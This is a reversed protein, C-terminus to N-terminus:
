SPGVGGAVCPVHRDPGRRSMEWAPVSAPHAERRNRRAVCRGSRQVVVADGIGLDLSEPRQQEVQVHRGAGFGCRDDDPNVAAREPGTVAAVQRLRELRAGHEVRQDRGSDPAGRDVVPQATLGDERGLEVVNDGGDIVELLVRVHEADVGGADAHPALRGAARQRRECAQGIRADRGDDPPVRDGVHHDAGSSVAVILVLHDARQEAGLRPLHRLQRRPGASDRLHGGVRRREQQDVAGGVGHHRGRM